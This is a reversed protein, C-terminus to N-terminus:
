MPRSNEASAIIRLSLLRTTSAKCPMLKGNWTRVIYAGWKAGTRENPGLHIRGPLGGSISEENNLILWRFIRPEVYIDSELRKRLPSKRDGGCGQCRVPTGSLDIFLQKAPPFPVGAEAHGTSLPSWATRSGNAEQTGLWLQRSSSERSAMICSLYCHRLAKITGATVDFNTKGTSGALGM